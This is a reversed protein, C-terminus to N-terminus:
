LDKLAKNAVGFHPVGNKLVKTNQMIYFQKQRKIAKLTHVSLSVTQM